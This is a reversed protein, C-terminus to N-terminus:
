LGSDLETKTRIRWEQRSTSAANCPQLTLSKIQHPSTGGRGARTDQGVTFCLNPAEVPSITGHVSKIFRQAASNDCVQLDIESDIDPNAVAACVDFAVFKLRGDAFMDPDIAQDPRIAGRYSFCTHAQLGDAPNVNPGGGKIDVCYHSLKSDLKDKLILEVLGELVEPENPAPTKTLNSSSPNETSSKQEDTAVSCATLTLCFFLMTALRSKASYSTNM